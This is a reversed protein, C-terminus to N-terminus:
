NPREGRLIARRHWGKDTLIFIRFLATADISTIPSIDVLRYLDDIMGREFVKQGLQDFHEGLSVAFKGDANATNLLDLLKTEEETM